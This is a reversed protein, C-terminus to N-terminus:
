KILLQQLLLCCVKKKPLSCLPKTVVHHIELFHVRKEIRLIRLAARWWHLNV